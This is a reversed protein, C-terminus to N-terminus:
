SMLSSVMWFMQGMWLDIAKKIEPSLFRELNGINVMALYHM